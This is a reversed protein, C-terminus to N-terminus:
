WGFRRFHLVGHGSWCRSRGMVPPAINIAGVNGQEAPNLLGRLTWLGSHRGRPQMLSAPDDASAEIGEIHAERVIRQDARWGVHQAHEGVFWALASARLVPWRARDGGGHPGHEGLKLPRSLVGPGDGRQPEDQDVVLWWGAGAPARGAAAEGPAM